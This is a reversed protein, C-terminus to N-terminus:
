DANASSPISTSSENSTAHLYVCEHLNNREDCEEKNNRIESILNFLSSSCIRTPVNPREFRCLYILLINTEWPAKSSSSLTILMIDFKEGSCVVGDDFVPFHVKHRKFFVM